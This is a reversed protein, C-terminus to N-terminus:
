ESVDEMGSVSNDASTYKFELADKEYESGNDEKFINKLKLLSGSEDTLFTVKYNTFTFSNFDQVDNVASFNGNGNDTIIISRSVKGPISESIVLEKGDGSLTNNMDASYLASGNEYYFGFQASKWSGEFKKFDNNQASVSQSLLITFFLLITIRLTIVTNM